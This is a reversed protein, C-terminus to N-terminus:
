FLLTQLPFLYLKLLLFLLVRCPYNYTNGEMSSSHANKHNKGGGEYKQTTTKVVTNINRCKFWITNSLLHYYYGLSLTVLCVITVLTVLPVSLDRLDSLDNLDSLGGHNSTVRTVERPTVVHAQTKIPVTTVM